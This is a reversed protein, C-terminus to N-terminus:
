WGSGGLRDGWAFEWAATRDIELRDRCSRDIKGLWSNRPRGMPKRWEPNDRVSLVRYAPDVNPLRDVYGCLMARERVIKNVSRSGTEHLLRQNSVNDNWRYGM